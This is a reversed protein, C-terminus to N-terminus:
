RSNQYNKSYSDLTKNYIDATLQESKHSRLFTTYLEMGVATLFNNIEPIDMALLLTSTPNGLNPQRRMSANSELVKAIQLLTTEDNYKGVMEIAIPMSIKDDSYGINIVLSPLGSNSAIPFRWTNITMGDYTAKGSNALPLILIDLQKQQMISHVYNRNKLFMTLVNKYEKSNLKPNHKLENLCDQVTWTTSRDALCIDKFNKRTSPFSALYQDVEEVEGALNNKRDSNFNPFSVEEISAGLNKLQTFFDQYMRNITINKGSVSTVLGIHIGKLNKKSLLEEYNSIIPHKLTKPDNEDAAAIVSLTIALDRISRTMPGAVGDLNGRPFIGTQSILGTSPRLGDLGNFGAPVRVSGSNDTGIGIVAFGASVAVASGSSSGGPNQTPDYANGVRGSRSSYGSLGAAFEDMSGKGIILAGAQKMQKVLFADNNPQSGLLALSGSTSPTDITDINDKVVVPICHLKGSLKNTKKFERDLQRAQDLISPNLSVLANLAGGRSIDLDYQKIRTLYLTMLEECTIQKSQIANEIDDISAKSIDLNGAFLITTRVFFLLTILLRFFNMIFSNM